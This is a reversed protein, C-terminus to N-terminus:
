SEIIMELLEFSLQNYILAAMQRSIRKHRDELKM